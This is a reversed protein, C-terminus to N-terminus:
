FLFNSTVSLTEHMHARVEYVITTYLTKYVRLMALLYRLFLFVLACRLLSKLSSRCLRFSTTTSTALSLPETETRRQTLCFTINIQSIAATLSQKEIPLITAQVVHKWLFTSPSTSANSETVFISINLIRKCFCFRVLCGSFIPRRQAGGKSQRTKSRERERNDSRRRLGSAGGGRRWGFFLSCGRVSAWKWTYISLHIPALVWLCVNLHIRHYWVVVVVAFVVICCILVFEM